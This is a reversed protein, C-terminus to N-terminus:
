TLQKQHTLLMSVTVKVQLAILWQTTNEQCQLECGTSSVGNCQRAAHRCINGNLVIHQERAQRRSTQSGDNVAHLRLHDHCAPVDDLLHGPLAIVNDHM